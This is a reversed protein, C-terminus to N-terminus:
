PKLDNKRETNIKKNKRESNNQIQLVFITFYLTGYLTCGAEEIILMHHEQAINIQILLGCGAEEKKFKDEPECINEKM